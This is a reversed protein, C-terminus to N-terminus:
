DTYVEGYLRDERCDEHLMQLHNDMMEEMEAEQREMIEQQEAFLLDRIHLNVVKVANIRVRNNTYDHDTIHVGYAKSPYSIIPLLDEYGREMTTLIIDASRKYKDYLKTTLIAVYIFDIPLYGDYKVKFFTKDAPHRIEELVFRPVQSFEIKNVSTYIKRKM